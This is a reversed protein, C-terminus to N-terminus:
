FTSEVKPYVFPTEFATFDPANADKDSLVVEDAAAPWAINLASSRWHVAGDASADYFASVKYSVITDAELTLFGHLFGKPVFVQTANGASLHTGFWRGFSPSGARVDVVVDFVAGSVVRVLKDQASPPAQYHLGRLTHKPGSFSENDQVFSVGPVVADFSRQSFSELFYGRGDHFTKPTLIKVDAIDADHIHVM